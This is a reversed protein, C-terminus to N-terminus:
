KTNQYERSKEKSQRPSNSVIRLNIKLGSIIQLQSLKNLPPLNAKRFAFNVRKEKWVSMFTQDIYENRDNREAVISWKEKSLPLTARLYADPIINLDVGLVSYYVKKKM